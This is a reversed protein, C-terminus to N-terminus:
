KICVSVTNKNIEVFGGKISIRKEDTSDTNEKICIEGETLSSILAAHNPLVSFSGKSGPLTIIVAEGKYMTGAPSLIDIQLKM